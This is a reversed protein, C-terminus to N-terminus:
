ILNRELIPSVSATDLRSDWFKDMAEKELEEWTKSGSEVSSLLSSEGNESKLFLKVERVVPNPVVLNRHVGAVPVWQGGEPLSTKSERWWYTNDEELEADSILKEFEEQTFDVPVAFVTSYTLGEGNTISVAIQQMSDKDKCQLRGVVERSEEILNMLTAHSDELGDDPQFVNGDGDVEGWIKMSAINEVFQLPSRQELQNAM